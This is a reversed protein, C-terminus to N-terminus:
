IFFHFKYQNVLRNPYKQLIHFELHYISCKMLVFSFIKTIIRNKLGRFFSCHKGLTQCQGDVRYQPWQDNVRASRAEVIELTELTGAM